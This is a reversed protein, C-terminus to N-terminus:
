RAPSSWAQLAAIEAPHGAIDPGDYVNFEHFPREGHSSFKGVLLFNQMHDRMFSFKEMLEMLAKAGEASEGELALSWQGGEGKVLTAKIETKEAM